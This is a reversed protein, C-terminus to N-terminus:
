PCSVLEVPEEFAAARGQNRLADRLYRHEANM